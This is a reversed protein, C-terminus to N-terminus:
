KIDALKSLIAGKSPHRPVICNCPMVKSSTLHEHCQPIFLSVFICFDSIKKM